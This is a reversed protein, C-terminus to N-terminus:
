FFHPPDSTHNNSFQRTLFIQQEGLSVWNGPGMGNPESDGIIGAISHRIGQQTM